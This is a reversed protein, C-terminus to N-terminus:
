FLQKQLSHLFAEVENLKPKGGEGELLFYFYFFGAPLFTALCDTCSM